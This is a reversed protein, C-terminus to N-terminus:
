TKMFKAEAEAVVSGDALEMRAQTAILRGHEHSVWGRITLPQGVAVPQRYRINLEGTVANVGQQWLMRSMIEDLLTAVIGGHVLGVWGQHHHQPTFHCLYQDGAFSFDSLHLGHPNHPGCAFCWGDDRLRSDSQEWM